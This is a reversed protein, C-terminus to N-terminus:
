YTPLWGIESLDDLLGRPVNGFFSLATGFTPSGAEEGTDPDVYSIRGDSFWIHDAHPVIQGHWWSQVDTSDPTLLISLECEDQYEIVRQIWDQKESFPPNVYVVDHNGWDRELGDQGNQISWNVDGIETDSGACPDLDIDVHETLVDLVDPPTLWRDKENQGYWPEDSQTQSQTM